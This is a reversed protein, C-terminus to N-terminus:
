SAAPKKGRQAKLVRVVIKQEEILFARVIRYVFTQQNFNNPYTNCFIILKYIRKLHLQFIASKQHIPLYFNQPKCTFISFCSTKAISTIAKMLIQANSVKECIKVDVLSEM